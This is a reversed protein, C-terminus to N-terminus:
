DRIANAYEARNLRHVAPRGPNPLAAAARDLTGELWKVLAAHTAAEPQPSGDPPMAGLRLKRVVKEWLEPHAAADGLVSGDLIVGTATAASKVRSNHCTTCYKEVAQRLEQPPATQATVPSQRAARPTAAAAVVLCVGLAIAWFRCKMAAITWCDQPLSLRRLCTVATM